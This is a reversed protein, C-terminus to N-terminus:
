DGPQACALVKAHAGVDGHQAEVARVAQRCRRCRARGLRGVGAARAGAAARVHRDGVRQREGDTRACAVGHQAHYGGRERMVSPAPSHAQTNCPASHMGAPDSRPARAHM